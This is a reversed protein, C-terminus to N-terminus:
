ATPQVNMVHRQKWEQRFIRLKEGDLREYGGDVDGPRTIYASCYYVRSLLVSGRRLIKLSRM